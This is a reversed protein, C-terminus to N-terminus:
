RTALVVGTAILVLGTWNIPSVRESFVLAGVLAVLIFNVAVFPYAKALPVQSLLWVWFLSIGLYVVMALLFFPDLALGLFRGVPTRAPSVAFRAAATKFLFQGLALSASYILLLAAQILTM